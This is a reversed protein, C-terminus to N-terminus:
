NWIWEDVDWVVREIWNVYSSVKTYIAVALGLGCADNGWSTIGVVHYLCGKEEVKVQLPGGSDGKCTDRGDSSGACLQEAFLGNRMKRSGSFMKDCQKHDYFKLAVKTLKRSRDEM